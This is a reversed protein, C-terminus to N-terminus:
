ATAKVRDIWAKADRWTRRQYGADIHINSPTNAGYVGLGIQFPEGLELYLRAGQLALERRLDSTAVSSPVRVDMASFWQHQSREAGNVLENYEPPRYARVSLPQRMRARLEQYLRATPVINPWLSRPPIGQRSWKPLRTLEQADILDTSIGANRLYQDLEALLAGVEPNTAQGVIIPEPPQGAGPAQVDPGAPPGPAPSLGGGSGGGGSSLSSSGAAAAVVLAGGVLALVLGTEM